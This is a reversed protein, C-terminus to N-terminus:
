RGPDRPVSQQSEVPAHPDSKHWVTTFYLVWLAVMWLLFGVLLGVALRKRPRFPPGYTHTSNPPTFADSSPPKPGDEGVTPEVEMPM